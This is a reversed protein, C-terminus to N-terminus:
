PPQGRALPSRLMLGKWEMGLLLRDQPLVPINRYAQKIDMKAMLAGKGLGAVVDEITTVYSLSALEKSIGDNVSKGDPASLNEM